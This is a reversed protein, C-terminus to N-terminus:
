DDCFLNPTREPVTAANIVSVVQNGVTASVNDSQPRTSAPAPRGWVLLKERLANPCLCLPPCKIQVGFLCALNVSDHGIKHGVVSSRGM